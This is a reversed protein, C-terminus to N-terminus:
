DVRAHAVNGDALGRPVVAFASEIRVIAFRSADEIDLFVSINWGGADGM